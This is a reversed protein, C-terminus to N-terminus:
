EAATPVYMLRGGIDRTQAGVNIDCYWCFEGGSKGVNNAGGFRTARFTNLALSRTSYYDGVPVANNADNENVASPIFLWDYREDGYGFASIWGGASAATFGAFPYHYDTGSITMEGRASENFSFDDAIYVRGGNAGGDGCLNIGNTHKFINGWPNEVGRYSVALKGDTSYPTETGAADYVTEAAMGTVNGLAATSGTLSAGNHPDANPTSVVGLGVASQSNFTGLEVAMLLQNASVSRITDLHWGLSKRQALMELNAKTMAKYRGSIPKVNPVSKLVADADIASATDVGDRFCVSNNSGDTYFYSAEYASLLAYDVERGNADLFLPHLKFGAHPAATVYYNAKRLHFGTGNAQKELKLPVVKYYFKPQYVMVDDGAAVRADFATHDDPDYYANIAGDASVACRRRGGFMPFADFDAGATKGAAAGLRTFVKNEFDARLGLIDTDTYGIYAKIDSVSARVVNVNDLFSDEVAALLNWVALATPYLDDDPASSGYTDLKNSLSEKAGLLQTMRGELAALSQTLYDAIAQNPLIDEWITSAAASGRFIKVKMSGGRGIFLHATNNAIPLIVGSEGGVSANIYITRKETEDNANLVPEATATDVHFVTQDDGNIKGNLARAVVRNQVPHTSATDLADDILIGGREDILQVQRILRDLVSYREDGTIDPNFADDVYILFRQTNYTRQGDSIMFRASIFGRVSFTIDDTLADATGDNNIDCETAFRSGDSNVGKMVVACSNLPFPEGDATVTLRLRKGHDYQTLIVAQCSKECNLDLTIEAIYDNM